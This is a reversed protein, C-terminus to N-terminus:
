NERTKWHSFVLLFERPIRASELQELVNARSPCQERERERERARNM